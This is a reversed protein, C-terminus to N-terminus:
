KPIGAVDCRKNHHAIFKPDINHNRTTRLDNLTLRITLYELAAHHNPCVCIINEIEDPGNHPSGLPHIHHAEAYFGGDPLVLREGCIQCRFAHLHKVARALGTDRIIRLTTCETRETKKQRKNPSKGVPLHEAILSEIEYHKHLDRKLAGRPVYGIADRLEQYGIPNETFDVYWDVPIRYERSEDPGYYWSDTHAIGDWHEKVTGVGLIGVLNEYMLLTDGLSLKALLDGFKQPGGTVAFGRNLLREVATEGGFAKADTNYFWYDM